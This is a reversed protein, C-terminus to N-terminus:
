EFCADAAACSAAHTLCEAEPDHLGESQAITCVELCSEGGPGPEVLEPCATELNGCASECDGEFPPPAPRFSCGVLFLVALARMM